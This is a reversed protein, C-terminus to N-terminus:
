SDKSNIEQRTREDLHRFLCGIIYNMWVEMPLENKAQKNCPVTPIAVTMGYHSMRLQPTNIKCVAFFSSVFALICEAFCGQFWWADTFFLPLNDMLAM